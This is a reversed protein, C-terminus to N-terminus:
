NSSRPRKWEIAFLGSTLFLLLYGSMLYDETLLFIAFTQMTGLAFGITLDRRKSFLKTLM